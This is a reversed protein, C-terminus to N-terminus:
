VSLLVLGVLITAIGGKQLPTLHEKLFVRALVLTVAPFLSAIPGVISMLGLTAGKNFSMAGVMELVAVFLIPKWAKKPFPLIKKYQPIMFIFLAFTALRFFVATSFWGIMKAITGMIFICLGWLILSIFAHPIGKQIGASFKKPWSVIVLGIMAVIIGLWHNNTVKENLFIVSLGVVVLLNCAVIPSMISVFGKQLGQYFFIYGFFTVIGGILFLGLLNPSWVVKQPFLSFLVIYGVVSFVYNWFFTQYPGVKDVGKKAFFDACGWAVMTLIGFLIPSLSM